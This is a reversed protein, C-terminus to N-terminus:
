RRMNLLMAPRQYKERASYWIELDLGHTSPTPNNDIFSRFFREAEATMGLIEYIFGVEYIADENHPFEELLRRLYFLAQDYNEIEQYERSLQLLGEELDEDTAFVM